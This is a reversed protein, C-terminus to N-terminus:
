VSGSFADWFQALYKAEDDFRLYGTRKRHAEMAREAQQLRHGYTKGVYKAMLKGVTKSRQFGAFFRTELFAQLRGRVYNRAANLPLKKIFAERVFEAARKALLKEINKKSAVADSLAILPAVQKNAM